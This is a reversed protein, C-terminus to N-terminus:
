ATEKRPVVAAAVPLAVLVAMIVTLAVFFAAAPHFAACWLLWAALSLCLGWGLSPRAPLPQTLVKQRASGLYFLTAGAAAAALALLNLWLMDM